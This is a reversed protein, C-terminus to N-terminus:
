DRLNIGDLKASFGFGILFSDTSRGPTYPRRRRTKKPANAYPQGGGNIINTKRLSRAAGSAGEAPAEM